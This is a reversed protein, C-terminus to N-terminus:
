EGGWKRKRKCSSSRIKQFTPPAFLHVPSEGLSLSLALFYFSETYWSLGTSSYMCVIAIFWAMILQM